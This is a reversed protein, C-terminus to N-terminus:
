RTAERAAAQFRAMIRERFHALAQTDTRWRGQHIRAQLMASQVYPAYNINTGVMGILETGDGDVKTTWSQGLKGTRKYRLLEAKVMSIGSGRMRDARIRVTVGAKTTFVRAPVNAPGQIADPPPPYVKMWTELEIVSALMPARLYSGAAIDDLKRIIQALGAPKSVEIGFDAM